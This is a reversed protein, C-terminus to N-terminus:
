AIIREIERAHSSESQLNLRANPEDPTTQIRRSRGTASRAPLWSAHTHTDSTTQQSSSTHRGRTDTMQRARKKRQIIDSGSPPVQQMNKHGSSRVFGIEDAFPLRQQRYLSQACDGNGTCTRHAVGTRIISKCDQNKLPM